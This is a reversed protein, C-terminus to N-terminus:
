QVTGVLSWVLILGEKKLNNPFKKEKNNNAKNKWVPNRQTDRAARSSARYVLSAKFECLDVERKRGVAPIFSYEVM